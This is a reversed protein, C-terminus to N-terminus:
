RGICAALGQETFGITIALAIAQACLLIYEILQLRDDFYRGKYVLCFTVDGVIASQAWRKTM